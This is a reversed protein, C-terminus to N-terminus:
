STATLDAQLVALGGPRHRFGLREYLAVARDNGQQTNVLVESVRWRRLWWLGDLVLGRGLGRGQDGPLVALRQVYGRLGARGVLAYGTEDRSMRFRASPTARVAEDLGVADLRWFPQFAAHDITLVQETDRGTARRLRHDTRPQLDLLDHFLLHLRERIEFGTDVYPRWELPPLAPTVALRYGHDRATDLASRVLHPPVLAGAPTAQCEATEARGRWPRVRIRVGDASVIHAATVPAM